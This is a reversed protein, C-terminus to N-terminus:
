AKSPLILNKVDSLLAKLVRISPSLLFAISHCGCSRLLNTFKLTSQQQSFSTNRHYEAYGVFLRATCQMLAITKINFIDRAYRRMIKRTQLLRLKVNASESNARMLYALDVSTTFGIPGSLAIKLWLDWDEASTLKEDFKVSSTIAEKNLLVGSTGIVNEAYIMAAGQKPIIQYGVQKSQNIYKNFLPWYDFCDGIFKNKENFHVYNCFSLTIEPHKKHFTLQKDLKHPLWYDDADLFAIYIGQAKDLGFNRAKAVGGGNIIKFPDIRKDCSAALTLYKWSDDTSDDDIIIIEVEDVSQNQISRIAIPLFALCNKTPIIISVVPESIGDHHDIIHGAGFTNQIAQQPEIM